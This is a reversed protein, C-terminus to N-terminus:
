QERLRPPVSGCSEGAVPAIFDSSSLAVFCLPKSQMKFLYHPLWLCCIWCNSLEPSWLYCSLAPPNVTSIFNISSPIGATESAGSPINEGHAQPLNSGPTFCCCLKSYLLCFHTLITNQPYPSTMKPLQSDLAGLAPGTPANRRGGCSWAGPSPELCKGRDQDM